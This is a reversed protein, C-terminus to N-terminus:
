RLAQLARYTQMPSPVQAQVASRLEKKSEPEEATSDQEKVPSSRHRQWNPRPSQKAERKAMARKPKRLSSTSSVVVDAHKPLDGKAKIRLLMDDLDELGKGRLSDCSFSQVSRDTGLVMQLVSDGRLEPSYTPRRSSLRSRHSYLRSVLEEAQRPSIKSALKPVSKVAPRSFQSHANMLREGSIRSQEATFVRSSGAEEQMATQKRGPSVLRQQVVPDRARQHGSNALRLAEIAKAEERERQQSEQRQTRSKADEALRAILQEAQEKKLQLRPVEVKKGGSARSNLTRRKADRLLRGYVDGQKATAPVQPRLRRAEEEATRKRYEELKRRAENRRSTDVTLRQFVHPAEPSSNLPLNCVLILSSTDSPVSLPPAPQPPSWPHAGDELLSSQGSIQPSQRVSRFPSRKPGEM